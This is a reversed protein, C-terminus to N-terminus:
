EKEAGALVLLMAALGLLACLGHIPERAILYGNLALGLSKVMLLPYRRLGDPMFSCGVFASLAVLAPLSALSGAWALTGVEAPGSGHRIGVALCSLLTPWPAAAETGDHIFLVLTLGAVAAALIRVERLWGGPLLAVTLLLYAWWARPRFDRADM